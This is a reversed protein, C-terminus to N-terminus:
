AHDEELRTGAPRGPPELAHVLVELAVEAREVRRIQAHLRALVEPPLAVDRGLDVLAVRHVDDFREALAAYREAAVLGVGVALERVGDLLEQLDFVEGLCLLPLDQPVVRHPEVTEFALGTAVSDPGRRGPLIGAHAPVGLRRTLPLTHRSGM